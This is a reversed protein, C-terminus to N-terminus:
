SFPQLDKQIDQMENQILQRFRMEILWVDEIDREGYIAKVITCKESITLRDLNPIYKTHHLAKTIEHYSRMFRKLRHYCHLQYRKCLKAVFRDLNALMSLDNIQSYFFLWGFKQSDLIFGTIRLNIRWIM